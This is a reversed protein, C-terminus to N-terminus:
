AGEATDLIRSVEAWLSEVLKLAGKRDIPTTDSDVSEYRFEGAFPTYDVLDRYRIMDVGCAALIDFLVSIDRTLPYSRGLLAIRAKRCKEAAQQVHFGFFEDSVEPALLTARLGEIDRKAADLLVRASRPDSM